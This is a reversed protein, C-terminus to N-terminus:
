GQIQRINDVTFERKKPPHKYRNDKGLGLVEFVVLFMIEAAAHWLHSDGSELDKSEGDWWATLHRLTADYPRSWDMGGLWNYENYKQAGKTLTTALAWMFSKHILGLRPKGGDHKVGEM